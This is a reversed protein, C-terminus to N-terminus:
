RVPCAVPTKSWTACEGNSALAKTYRSQWEHNLADRREAEKVQRDREEDEHQKRENASREREAKAEAQADAAVKRADEVAKITSEAWEARTVAVGRDYAADVQAMHWWVVAIVALAIAVYKWYRLLFIM